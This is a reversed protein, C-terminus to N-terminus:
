ERFWTKNVGDYRLRFADNASITLPEGIVSNGNGNVVFATVDQTVIVDVEQLNVPTAPLTIAGDNYNTVPRCILWTKFNNEVIVNFGDADPNAYQTVIGSNAGATQNIYQVLQWVTMRLTAAYNGSYVPIETSATVEPLTNQQNIGSM